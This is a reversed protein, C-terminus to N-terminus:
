RICDWEPLFTDFCVTDVVKKLSCDYVVFNLGRKNKAYERGDIRVSCFNGSEYGASAIQYISRGDRFSGSTRLSDLSVEEETKEKTVVAYYSQRYAGFIKGELGLKKLGEIIEDDLSESADDAAVVFVAYEPRNIAELYEKIDTIHILDANRIFQEYLEKTNEWQNDQIAAIHYDKRLIEGITGSIKKAGWYNAHGNDQNDTAFHYAMKDYWEKENFDYYRIGHLGAYADFRNYREESAASYPTKILILEIGQDRCLMTIEDLYSEMLPVMEETGKTNGKEFPKYEENKVQEALVSYGKLGEENQMRAFSFDDENLGSWRTHFRQNIFYYSNKTQKPDLRTIDEIAEKKVDSWRMYDIVKRTFGEASNLPEKTNYPYCMYVDLVVAKPKQYRLAERLLYYSVLLNQQETGLNYSRIGYEDYLEQPSIATVSHSSGLIVVDVTDEEMQYFQEVTSTTPWMYNYYYKPAVIVNLLTLVSLLIMILLGGKLLFVFHKANM